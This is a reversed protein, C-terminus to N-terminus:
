QELKDLQEKTERTQKVIFEQLSKDTLSRPRLQDLLSLYETLKQREFKRLKEKTERTQKVIFEHRLEDTLSMSDLQDLLGLYETLKWPMESTDVFDEM